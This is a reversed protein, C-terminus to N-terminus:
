LKVGELRGPAAAPVFQPLVDDGVQEFVVQLPMGAYADTESCERLNTFLVVDDQEELTVRAVMYPVDQAFAPHFVHHIVTFSHLTGRGSVQSPTLEDSVCHICAAAPPHQLRQCRDCRQIMLKHQKAAEWFFANFPTLVPRPRAVSGSPVAM